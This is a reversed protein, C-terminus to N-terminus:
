ATRRFWDAILVSQVTASENDCGIGIIGPTGLFAATTETYQQVFTGAIGSYSTLLNLNTTGDYALQLYYWEPSGGGAVNNTNWMTAPGVVNASFTTNNSLRQAVWNAGNGTFGFHLIHGSVGSSTAVFLGGAAGGAFNFTTMKATFAWAGSPVVQGYGGYNRSGGNLAPNFILSGQSLPGTGTLLGFPTWLSTTNITTGTEFEDDWTTPSTPHTDPTINASGGGGGSGNAVATVIGEANVTLNTSTYSGPTLGSQTVLDINYTGSSTIPSAGGIDITGGTSTLGVSTVTGGGGPSGATVWVPPNVQELWVPEGLTTDFYEQGIYVPNQPTNVPRQSTPGSQGVPGLWDHVSSFFAQYVPTLRQKTDVIVPDTPIPNIPM